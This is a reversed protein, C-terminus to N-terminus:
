RRVAIFRVVIQKCELDQFVPAVLAYEVGLLYFVDECLELTLFRGHVDVAGIRGRGGFGRRECAILDELADFLIALPVLAQALAAPHLGDRM